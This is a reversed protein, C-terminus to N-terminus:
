VPNEAAVMMHRDRNEVNLRGGLVTDMLEGVGAMLTFFNSGNSINFFDSM